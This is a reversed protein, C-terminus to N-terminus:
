FRVYAIKSGSAFIRYTECVRQRSFPSGINKRYIISTLVCENIAVSIGIGWVNLTFLGCIKTKNKM